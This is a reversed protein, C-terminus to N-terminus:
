YVRYLSICSEFHTVLLCRVIIATQVAQVTVPLAPLETKHYVSLVPLGTEHYLLLENSIAVDHAVVAEPTRM